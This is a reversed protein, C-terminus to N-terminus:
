SRTPRQEPRGTPQAMVGISARLCLSAAVVLGALSLGLTLLTPSSVLGEHARLLSPTQSAAVLTWVLVSLAGLTTLTGVSLLAIRRSVRVARNEPVRLAVQMVVVTCVLGCVVTAAALVVFGGVQRSHAPDPGNVLSRAVVLTLALGAVSIPVALLPAMPRWRRPRRRLLALVAVLSAATMVMATAIACAMLAAVAWSMGPHHDVATRLPSDDLMKAFAAGSLVFLLLGWAAFPILRREREPMGEGYPVSAPNSWASVLGRLLDWSGTASWRGEDRLALVTDRMEDDYRVRWWPPYCGLLLRTQWGLRRKDAFGQANSM